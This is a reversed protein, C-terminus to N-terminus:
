LPVGMYVWPHSKSGIMTITVILTLIMRRLRYPRPWDM